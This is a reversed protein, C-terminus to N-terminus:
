APRLVIPVQTWGSVPPRERVPSEDADLGVHGTQALLEWVLVRLEMLTLARGTCAHPGIGFVLNDPAHRHPDVEDPATM